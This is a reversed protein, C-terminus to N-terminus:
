DFVLKRYRNLVRKLKDSLLNTDSAMVEKKASVAFNVTEDGAEISSVPGEVDHNFANTDKAWEYLALALSKSLSEPLEDLDVHTYSEVELLLEDILMPLMTNEGDNPMLGKVMELVKDKKLAM